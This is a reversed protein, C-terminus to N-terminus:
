SGAGKAETPVLVFKWDSYRQAAPLRLGGAAFATQKLPALSSTSQVGLISGDANTIIQWDRQTMPDPYLARLHRQTGVFRRDELLDELRKPYDKVSGPSVAHYRAIAQAYLTGIRILEAERERRSQDSWTTGMAALGVSFIALAFLLLAYAFGRQTQARHLPQGSGARM